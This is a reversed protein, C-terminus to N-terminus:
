DQTAQHPAAYRGEHKRNELWEIVAEKPYVVRGGLKFYSPTDGTLRGLRATQASSFLGRQVLDQVRCNEPLLRNLKLIYEDCASM